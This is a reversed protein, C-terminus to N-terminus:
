AFLKRGNTKIVNFKSGDQNDKGDVVWTPSVRPNFRLETESTYNTKAILEYSEFEIWACRLKDAGNFIRLSAGKQNKLTCGKLVIDHTSPCVYTADNSADRIQWKQFNVGKALHFAIKYM